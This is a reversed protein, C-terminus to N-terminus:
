SQYSLLDRVARQIDGGHKLLLDSNLSADRFGMEELAKLKEPNVEQTSAPNPNNNNSSNGDQQEPQEGGGAQFPGQWGQRHHAHHPFPFGGGGGFYPHARPGGCAGFGGGGCGGHGLGAFAAALQQQKEPDSLIQQIPLLFRGFFAPSQKLEDFVHDAPHISERNAICSSCLDYDDCSKCKYRIGIIQDGCSDCHAPHVVVSEADANDPTGSSNANTGQSKNSSASNDTDMKDPRQAREVIVLRLTNGANVNFAEHLDLDSTVSIWEDEDDQYKFFFSNGSLFAPTSAGQSSFLDRTLQLLAAFNLSRPVSIRRVDRGLQLKIPLVESASTAM